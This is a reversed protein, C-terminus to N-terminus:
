QMEGEKFEAPDFNYDRSCFECHMAIVGDVTVDEIDDESMGSLIARVREPSCRCQDALPRTEYVRVGEEHFLRYLLDQAPLGSDLMERETVSGLLVMTRRWDDEDINSEERNNYAAADDPMQQLMLGCGRWRGDGDRGVSIVIGTAIQESQVFYNQVSAILSESKLEVVGQYRDTFDGQDVTFAMHGSGLLEARNRDYTFSIDGGEKFTACSRVHGESTVDAVLTDVPGDGQAQLTFVGEYKLMSALLVCLVLTEGALYRAEEPYDAHRGLIDDLVGGLRVIRGRINSSELQFSQVFNDDAM